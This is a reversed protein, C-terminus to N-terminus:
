REFFTPLSSPLNTSFSLLLPPKSMTTLPSVLFSHGLTALGTATSKLPVHFSLLSQEPAVVWVIAASQLPLKLTVVCPLGWVDRVTHPWAPRKSERAAPPCM